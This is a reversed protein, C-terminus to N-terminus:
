RRRPARPCTTSCRRSCTARGPTTCGPSARRCRRTTPSTSRSTASPRRAALPRQRGQRHDGRGRHQSGPDAGRAHRRAADAHLARRAPRGPDRGQRDLAEVGLLHGVAGEHRRHRQRDQRQALRHRGAVRRLPGHLAGRPRLVSGAAAGLHEERSEAPLQANLPMMLQQAILTVMNNASLGIVVDFGVSGSSLKATAEDASNYTAIKVKCDYQKEFKKVLGPWIYDAYNFVQLTGGEPKLGNKIPPNDATIAWTVSYDPRPLPLGDPGTPRPVVLKRM